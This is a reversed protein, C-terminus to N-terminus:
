GPPQKFAALEEVWAILDRSAVANFLRHDDDIEILRVVAPNGAAALRRSDEPDIVDDRLGHVIWVPVDAPLTPPLGCRLGAQALLLTPGSWLGRQLLALAVAGGFSSGVVVDPRFGSICDAQLAVCADFDSTDMAPTRTDFASGLLRAKNGQPSGELGHIFQVRLTM